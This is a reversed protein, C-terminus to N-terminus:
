ARTLIMAMLHDQVYTSGVVLLIITHSKYPIEISPRCQPYNYWIHYTSRCQSRGHALLRKNRVDLWKVSLDIIKVKPADQPGVKFLLSTLKVWRFTIKTFLYGM